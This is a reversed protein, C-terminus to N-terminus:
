VTEVPRPRTASEIQICNRAVKTVTACCQQGFFVSKVVRVMAASRYGGLHLRLPELRDAWAVPKLILTAAALAFNQQPAAFIM